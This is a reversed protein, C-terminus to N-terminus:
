KQNQFSKVKLTRKLYKLIKTYNRLSNPIKSLDQHSNYPIYSNYQQMLTKSFFAQFTAHFCPSGLGFNEYSFKDGDGM